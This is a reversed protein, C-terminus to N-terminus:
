APPTVELTQIRGDREIVVGIVQDPRARVYTVWDMWLPMSQDDAKVIVIAWRFVQRM